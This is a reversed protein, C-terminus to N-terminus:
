KTGKICMLVPTEPQQPRNPKTGTVIDSCFYMIEMLTYHTYLYCACIDKIRSVNRGRFFLKYHREYEFYSSTVLATYRQKILCTVTLCYV